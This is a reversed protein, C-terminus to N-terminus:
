EWDTSKWKWERVRGTTRLVDAARQRNQSTGSGTMDAQPIVYIDGTLNASGDRYFTVSQGIRSGSPPYPQRDANNFIPYDIVTRTEGSFERMTPVRPTGYIAGYIIGPQLMIRRSQENSDCVENQNDDDCWMFYDDGALNSMPPRGQEAGMSMIFLYPNGERIARARALRLNGAIDRITTNVRILTRYNMMSLFGIAAVIAIIGIVVMMEILTFGSQASIKSMKAKLRYPNTKMFM